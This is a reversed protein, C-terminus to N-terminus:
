DHEIEREELDTVQDNDVLEQETEHQIIEDVTAEGELVVNVPEDNEEQKKVVPINLLIRLVVVVALLVVIYRFIPETM